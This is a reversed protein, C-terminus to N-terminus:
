ELVAKVMRAAEEEVRARLSRPIRLFGDEASDPRSLYCCIEPYASPDTSGIFQLEKRRLGPIIAVAPTKRIYLRDSRPWFRLQYEESDPSIVHCVSRKWDSMRFSVLRLFDSPLTIHGGGPCDWEVESEFEEWEDIDERAAASIVREAAEPLVKVILRRIEGGPIGYEIRDALLNENLDLRLMVGSMLSEM